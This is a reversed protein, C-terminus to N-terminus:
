RGRFEFCGLDVTGAVNREGGDLDAAPLLTLDTGANICPSTSSLHYDGNIPDVFQPDFDQNDGVFDSTGLAGQTNNCRFETRQGNGSLHINSDAAGATNGWIINNCVSLLGSVGDAKLALGGGSGLQWMTSLRTTGFKFTPTRLSLSEVARSPHTRRGIGRLSTTSSESTEPRALM